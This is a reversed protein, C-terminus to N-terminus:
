DLQVSNSEGDTISKFKGTLGGGSLTIIDTNDLIATDLTPKEYLKM